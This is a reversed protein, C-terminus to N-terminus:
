RGKPQQFAQADARLLKLFDGAPLFDNLHYQLSHFAPPVDILYVRHTSVMWFGYVRLALAVLFRVEEDSDSLHGIAQDIKEALPSVAMSYVTLHDATPRSEAYALPAGNLFVQHHWRGSDSVLGDLDGPYGSMLQQVNLEWIKLSEGLEASHLESQLQDRITPLFDAIQDSINTRWEEHSNDSGTFTMADEGGGVVDALARGSGKKPLHYWTSRWTSLLSNYDTQNSVGEPDFVSFVWNSRGPPPHNNYQWGYIIVV